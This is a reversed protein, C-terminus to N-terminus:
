INTHKNQGLYYAANLGQEISLVKSNIAEHIDALTYPKKNWRGNPTTKVYLENGIWKEQYYMINFNIPSIIGWMITTACNIILTM